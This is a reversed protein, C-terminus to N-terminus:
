DPDTSEASPWSRRIQRAVSQKNRRDRGHRRGLTTARDVKEARQAIVILQFLASLLSCLCDQWSIFAQISVGVWCFVGEEWKKEVYVESRSKECKTCHSSRGVFGRKKVRRRNGLLFKWEWKAMNGGTNAWVQFENSEM